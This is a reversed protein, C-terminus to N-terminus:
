GGGTCRFSDPLVIGDKQRVAFQVGWGWRDEGDLRRIVVACLWIEVGAADMGPEITTEIWNQGQPANQEALFGSLYRGITQDSAETGVGNCSPDVALSIESSRLLAELVDKPKPPLNSVRLEVEAPTPADAPRCAGLGLILAACLLARHGLHPTSAGM